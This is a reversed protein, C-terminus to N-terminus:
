LDPANFDGEENTRTPSVDGLSPYKLWQAASGQVALRGGRAPERDISSVDMM